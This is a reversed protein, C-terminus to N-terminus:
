EIRAPVGDEYLGIETVVWPVPMDHPEVPIDERLLQERCLLVASGRYAALFRDYYGGGQGLRHGARSCSLCPLVAFDVEVPMLRPCEPAPELIGYAGQVLRDLSEVARLEMIGPEATCLPLCLRKGRKLADNLIARTDIERATGVFCFVTDADRYDPLACVLAAIAAASQEKYRPSLEREQARVRRRLEKKEEAITM